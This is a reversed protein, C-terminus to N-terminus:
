HGLFPLFHGSFAAQIDYFAPLLERINHIIQRRCSHGIEGLVAEGYHIGIGIHFEVNFNRRLYENLNELERLMQLAASLANRCNIDGHPCSM